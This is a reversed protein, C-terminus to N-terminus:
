LIKFGGILLGNDGSWVWNHAGDPHSMDKYSSGERFDLPRECVLAAENDGNFHKLYNCQNLEFWESFWIWQNYATVLFGILFM